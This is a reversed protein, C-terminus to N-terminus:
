DSFTVFNIVGDVVNNDYQLPSFHHHLTLKKTRYDFEESIKIQGAQMVSSIFENDVTSKAGFLDKHTNGVVELTTVKLFTALKENIRTILGKNDYEIVFFSNE